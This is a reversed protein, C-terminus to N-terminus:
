ILESMGVICADTLDMQRDAYKRPLELVATTQEALSFALVIEGAHIM